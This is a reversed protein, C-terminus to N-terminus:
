GHQRHAAMAAAMRLAAILSDPKAMGKGAIDFATGHDPSTRIVPLGLTVNVGSDFDLTKIPILAQDHYMCIAADYGARAEAHFMTDPPLPGRADIGQARLRAVAPAVIAADEKGMSGAEGAHPNLGAIALRPRAIGFKEHLDQATIRATEVILDADLLEIARRLSIHITVPVVRLRESALMMVPRAVDCLAALFETHGPHSFGADYLAAKHIPNTVMAAARGNRCLAVALEIAHLVAPANRRDPIGPQPAAPLPVPLVPLARDFCAAAEEPEAVAQVPVAWGQQGALSQLRQPDDLMLFPVLDADRRRLWAQLAIEGGIGAPEGMTLVLPPLKARNAPPPKDSNSPPM